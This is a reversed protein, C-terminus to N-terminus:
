SYVLVKSLTQGTMLLRKKLKVLLVVKLVMYLFSILM